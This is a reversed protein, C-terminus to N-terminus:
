DQTRRAERQAIFDTVLVEDSRTLQESDTATKWALFERLLRTDDQIRWTRQYPPDATRVSMRGEDGEGADSVSLDPV